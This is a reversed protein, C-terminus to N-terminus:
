KYYGLRIQQRRLRVRSAHVNGCLIHSGYNRPACNARILDPKRYIVYYVPFTGRARDLGRFDNYAEFIQRYVCVRESIGTAVTKKDYACQIHM